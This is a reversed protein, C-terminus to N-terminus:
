EELMKIKHHITDSVQILFEKFDSSFDNETVADLHKQEYERFNVLIGHIETLSNDVFRGIQGDCYIANAVSANLADRKILVRKM